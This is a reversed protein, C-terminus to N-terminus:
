QHSKRKPPSFNPQPPIMHETRKPAPTSPPARKQTTPKVLKPKTKCYSWTKMKREKDVSTACWLGDREGKSDICENHNKERYVFPFKCKGTKLNATFKKQHKNHRNMKKTEM